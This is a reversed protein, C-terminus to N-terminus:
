DNEFFKKMDKYDYKLYTAGNILSKKIVAKGNTTFYVCENTKTHKSFYENMTNVLQKTEPTDLVYVNDEDILIIVEKKGSIGWGEDINIHLSYMISDRTGVYDSFSEIGSSLQKKLAPKPKDGSNKDKISKVINEALKQINKNDLLLDNKKFFNYKISRDDFIDKNLKEILENIEKTIIVDKGSTTSSLITEYLTKM